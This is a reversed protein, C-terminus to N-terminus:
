AGSILSLFSLLLGVSALFGGVIWFRMVVKEEPWGLAEFHHHLPAIKFIKRGLFRKSLMQAGSSAAEIVFIGGILPLILASNTLMAIVGLTAGLALAGTDGMYFLAPPINFWLFALTAGAILGCFATLLILGQLYAIVGFASFAIVVLGGALGDLGDTINVANAGAVVVFTFLAIYWAGISYDGLGPVHISDFGLKYYFWLGGALAFVTLWFFKPRVKLGKHQKEGTIQEVKWAHINLYDDLLGLLGTAVLTFVPLYTENRNFLNFRTLNLWQMIPSVFVIFAVVGWILVGGMTPTGRKKKHLENFISASGGDAAEDRLQKRMGLKILLNYFPKTLLTVLIFASMSAGFILTFHRLMTPTDLTLSFM